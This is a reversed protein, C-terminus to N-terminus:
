KYSNGRSFDANFLRRKTSAVSMTLFAVSSSFFAKAFHSGPIHGGCKSDSASTYLQVFPSNQLFRLMFLYVTKYKEVNSEPLM